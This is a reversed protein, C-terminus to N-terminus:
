RITTTMRNELNNPDRENPLIVRALLQIGPRNAKIWVKGILDDGIPAKGVPYQYHIYNGQNASVHLYEARQGDHAGQDTSAHAVEDYGADAGAKVWITKSAEFGNRHVQQGVAPAACSLFAAVVMWTRDARMM